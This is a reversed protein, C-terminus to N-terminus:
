FLSLNSNMDAAFIPSQINLKCKSNLEDILYKCLEPSYQEDHQHMFFWIKKIGQTKWQKIRQVWDDIRSYDTPHLGNGVFRIFAEPVTLEMHACDRRGSTDTIVTGVKHTECFSFIKELNEPIYWDPHRLELFVKIDKPLSQLYEAITDYHKPGMQPHPMLFMPGLQDGFGSLVDLLLDTEHKADKLRKIHTVADTFKPCFMFDKGVKNKWIRVQEHSPLKYFIANFEICNFQKGYAELFDKDKTGKPYIKGVWEKRGWKACGIYVETHESKAVALVKTARPSDAPLKFDIESIESDDVRGFEM